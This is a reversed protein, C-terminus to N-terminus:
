KYVILVYVILVAYAFCRFRSFVFTFFSSCSITFRKRLHRRARIAAVNRVRACRRRRSYGYSSRAIGM